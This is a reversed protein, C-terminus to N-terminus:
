PQDGASNQELLEVQRALPRVPLQYDLMVFGEGTLKVGAGEFGDRSNAAQLQGVASRTLNPTAKIIDHM